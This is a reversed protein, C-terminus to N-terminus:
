LLGGGGWVCVSINSSLGVFGTRWKFFFHLVRVSKANRAISSTLCYFCDKLFHNVRAFVANSICVSSRQSAFFHIDHLVYCVIYPM